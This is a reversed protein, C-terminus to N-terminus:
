STDRVQHHDMFLGEKTQTSVTNSATNLACVDNVCSRERINKSMTHSRAKFIGGSEEIVNTYGAQSEKSLRLSSRSCWFFACEQAEMTASRSHTSTQSATSRWGDSLREFKYFASAARWELWHVKVEGCFPGVCSLVSWGM